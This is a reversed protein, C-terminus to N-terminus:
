KIIYKLTNKIEGIPLGVVNFFDGNISKVFPAAQGQIAYGGAKDYCEGTEIYDLIEKNSIKYFEVITESSFSISKGKYSLYVGTIVKHTRGSLMSIMAYAEDKTQPKGLIIDSVFVMTDASIVLNDYYNEAIDKGKMVAFLEPRKEPPYSNDCKEEVNSPIIEFENFLYKLLENRRPSKSALIVKINEM